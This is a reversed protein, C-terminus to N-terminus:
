GAALATYAAIVLLVARLDGMVVSDMRNMAYALSMRLDLDIV